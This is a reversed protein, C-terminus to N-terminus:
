MISQLILFFNSPDDPLGGQLFITLDAKGSVPHPRYLGSSVPTLEEEMMDGNDMKYKNRPMTRSFIPKRGNTGAVMGM